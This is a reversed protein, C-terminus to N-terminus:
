SKPLENRYSTTIVLIKNLINVEAALKYVNCSYETATILLNLENLFQTRKSNKNYNIRHTVPKKLIINLLETHLQTIKIADLPWLM